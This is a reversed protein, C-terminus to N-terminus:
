EKTYCVDMNSFQEIVLQNTAFNAEKLGIMRFVAQGLSSTEWDTWIIM